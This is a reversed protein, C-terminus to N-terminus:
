TVRTAMESVITALIFEDEEKEEYTPIARPEFHSPIDEPWPSSAEIEFDEWSYTDNAM